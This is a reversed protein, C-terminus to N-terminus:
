FFLMYLVFGLGLVFAIIIAVTKEIEEVKRDRERRRIDGEMYRRNWFENARLSKEYEKREEENLESVLKGKYKPTLGKNIKIIGM